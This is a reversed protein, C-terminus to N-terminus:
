MVTTVAENWISSQVSAFVKKTLETDLSNTIHSYYTVTCGQTFQQLLFKWSREFSSLKSTDTSNYYEDFNDFYKSLPVTKIKEEFLDSKNLFLIFPTQKFIKYATISKWLRISESFRPTDPAEQLVLDYESIACVFIIANTAEFVSLWNKRESRQGGVDVFKFKHNNIDFSFEAIATTKKRAMLVDEKTPLFDNSAFRIVNSFYYNGGLSGGPLGLIDGQSDLLQKVKDNRYLKALMEASAQDLDSVGGFDRVCDQISAPVGGNSSKV